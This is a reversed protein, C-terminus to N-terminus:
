VVLLKLTTAPTDLHKLECSNENGWQEGTLGGVELSDRKHHQFHSSGERSGAFVPSLESFTNAVGKWHDISEKSNYLINSQDNRHNQRRLYKILM